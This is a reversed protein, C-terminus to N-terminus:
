LAAAACLMLGTHYEEWQAALWPIMIALTGIVVLPGSGLALTGAMQATILHVSLADCGTCGVPVAADAPCCVSHKSPKGPSRGAAVVTGHRHLLMCCTPPAAGHDFLQGLPSSSKTRRAQKGDLCDLHLYMLVALGSLFYVWSPAVGACAAPRLPTVWQVVGRTGVAPWPGSDPAPVTALQVGHTSPWGEFEPLYIASAVYGVVLGMTGLLTILNPALWMPFYNVIGACQRCHHVGNLRQVCCRVLMVRQHLAAAHLQVHSPM